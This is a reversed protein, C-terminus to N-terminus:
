TVPQRRALTVFLLHPFECVHNQVFIQVLM